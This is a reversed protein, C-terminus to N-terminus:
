IKFFDVGLSYCSNTSGCWRITVYGKITALKYFTWKYYLDYAEHFNKPPTESSVKEAIIIPSDILDDLDGVIDEIYVHECCDQQHYMNYKKGNDTTFSINNGGSKKVSISVLTKGILDKFEAKM